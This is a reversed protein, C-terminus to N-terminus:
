KQWIWKSNGCDWIRLYGQELRNEYETKTPDDNVSKRLSFRHIRKGEKLNIYWYGLGTEGNSKFGIEKYVNGTNWRNDSYSIIKEFSYHNCFYKFLKSSGGIVLHNLSSAFRLLEWQDSNKIGRSLNSKSFTMLSVLKDNHYLGLKVSSKSYGQIHNQELFLKEEKFSVEKIICDRAYIRNPTKKFLNLLRSKVIDRRHDWEDEFIHILRIGKEEAARTKLIHYNKDIRTDNHWFLGNFEIGINFEPCFIDIEQNGLIKKNEEIYINNERLFKKIEGEKISGKNIGSCKICPTGTEKIRWKFTETPLNESSGCVCKFSIIKNPNEYLSEKLLDNNISNIEVTNPTFLSFKEVRQKDKKEKFEDTKSYHDVGHSLLYTNKIKEYHDAMQGPNSVGYRDQLTLRGKINLEGSRERASLRTKESVLGGYKELMTKLRQEKLAPDMLSESGFKNKYDECTISHTKLHTSTILSKFEKNCIKCIITM